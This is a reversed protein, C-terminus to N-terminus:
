EVKYSDISVGTGGASTGTLADWTLNIQENVSTEVTYQLNLVVDAVTQLLVGTPNVQSYVGWGNVNRAKVKVMILQDQSIHDPDVWGLETVLSAM